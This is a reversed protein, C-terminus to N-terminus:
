CRARGGKSPAATRRASAGGRARAQVATDVQHGLWGVGSLSEASLGERLEVRTAALMPEPPNGHVQVVANPETDDAALIGRPRGRYISPAVEIRGEALLASALTDGPYGQGEVGDFTFRLPRTRDIRGGTSLRHTM